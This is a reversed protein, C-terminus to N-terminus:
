PAADGPGLQRAVLQQALVRAVLENGWPAYHSCRLIRETTWDPALTDFGELVDVVPIGEDRLRDHLPRYSVPRGDRRADLDTRDPFIVVLPGAGNTRVREVFRRLVALALRSPEADLNLEGRQIAREGDGSRRLTASLLKVLRVSALADLPGPDSVPPAYDDNRVIERLKPVPDALFARYADAGPLPNSLLELTGAGDLLFRPKTLVHGTTPAFFPRFVNVGRLVDDTIVGVLAVQPAM